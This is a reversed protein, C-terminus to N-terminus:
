DRTGFISPVAAKYAPLLPETENGRKSGTKQRKM